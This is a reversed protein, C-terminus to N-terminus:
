SFLRTHYGYVPAPSMRGLWRLQCFGRRKARGACPASVSGSDSFRGCALKELSSFGYGKSVM